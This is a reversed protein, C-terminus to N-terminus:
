VVVALDDGLFKCRLYDIQSNRVDVIEGRYTLGRQIHPNGGLLSMLLEDLADEEEFDGFGVVAFLENDVGAEAAM